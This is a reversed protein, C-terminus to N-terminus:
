GLIGRTAVTGRKSGTVRVEPPVNYAAPRYTGVTLVWIHPDPRGCGVGSRSFRPVMPATCGSGVAFPFPWSQHVSKASQDEGNEPPGNECAEGGNQM